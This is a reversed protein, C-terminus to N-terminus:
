DGRQEAAALLPHGPVSDKACCCVYYDPTMTLADHLREWMHPPEQCISVPTHPSRDRIAQILFRYMEEREDDSLPGWINGEMEQAGKEIAEIFRPEFLSADMIRHFMGQEPMRSLTELTIVAPHVKRFLLDLMECNERQWNHIPCVASLRFRVTYGAQECKRAAEIREEMTAADREIKRSQTYANLTWCCITQGRHDLGLMHDVNDSKSYTMLYKDNFQAFHEVLLKVAGIEPEFCLTDTSNDWKWLTPGSVRRIVPAVRGILDEINMALVLVDPIACYDCKFLCGKGSHLGYGSQCVVRDRKMLYSRERFNWTGLFKNECERPVPQQLEGDDPPWRYTDLVIPPDGHRQRGSKRRSEKWGNRESLDDLEADTVTRIDSCTVRTLFRDARIRARENGFVAKNIYVAPPHLQRM